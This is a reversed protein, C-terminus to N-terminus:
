IKDKIVVLFKGKGYTAKNFDKIKWGDMNANYAKSFETGAPFLGAVAEQDSTSTLIVSNGPFVPNAVVPGPTGSNVGNPLIQSVPLPRKWLVGICGWYCKRDTGILGFRELTMTSPDYVMNAFM